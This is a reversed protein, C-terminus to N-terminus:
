KSYYDFVAKAIKAIVSDRTPEDDTSNCIMIAIALHKGNPLTIIGADNTAPSLGNEDTPSTGTKHAVVTGPPLLGKIRNPGTTTETMLKYLFDTSTKSITKDQYFLDLLKTLAAPKAWDTYQVEWAAAMDAESAEISIGRVGVRAIYNQVPQTGGLISLLIDCANNDSQSVMYSLLDRVPVDVDGKPYKDRLPSYTNKPLDKKTIHVLMDLNLKGSDVLHLTAIAIPFKMVSQLVLRSYGNFTLTDRSEIGLVSVGAIGKLPKTIQKIQNRLVSDPQAQVFRPSILIIILNIICFYKNM